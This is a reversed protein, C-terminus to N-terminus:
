IVSFTRIQGVFILKKTCQAPVTEKRELKELASRYNKTAHNACEIKRIAYGYGLVKAIPNPYVSSDGDGVFRTYRLGHQSEAKQFGEVHIDREM